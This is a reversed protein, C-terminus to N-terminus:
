EEARQFLNKWVLGIGALLLLLPAIWLLRHSEFPPRMLVREGYQATLATIVAEDSAGNGVAERVARRMDGAVAAPSDAISEGACVVCRLERFLAQARTEQAADALPAEVNLAYTPLSLLLFLFFFRMM